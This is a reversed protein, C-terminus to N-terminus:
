SRLWRDFNDRMRVLTTFVRRILSPMRPTLTPLNRDACSMSVDDNQEPQFAPYIVELLDKAGQDGCSAHGILLLRAQEPTLKNLTPSSYTKHCIQSELPM